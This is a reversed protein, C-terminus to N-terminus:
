GGGPPSYNSPASIGSNSTFQVVPSTRAVEGFYMDYLMKGGGGQQIYKAEFRKMGAQVSQKLFPRPRQVVRSGVRLARVPYGMLKSKAIIFKRMQATVTFTQGFELIYAVKEAPTAGRRSGRLSNGPPNKFDIEIRRPGETPVRIRLSKLLAGTDRLTNGGGKLARTMPTNPLINIGQYSGSSLVEWLVRNIEYGLAYLLSNLAKNERYKWQGPNTIPMKLRRFAEPNVPRLKPSIVDRGGFKVARGFRRAAFAGGYIAGPSTHGTMGRYSM